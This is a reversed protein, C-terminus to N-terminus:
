RIVSWIVAAVAVGFGIMATSVACGLAVRASRALMGICFGGVGTALVIYAVFLISSLIKASEM